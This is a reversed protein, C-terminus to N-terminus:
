ESLKLTIESADKMRISLDYGRLSIELPDGLPAKKVVMVKTNPTLGMDLLRRRLMGSGGVALVVGHQGEKLKDLTIQTKEM